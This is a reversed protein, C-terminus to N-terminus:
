RPQPEGESKSYRYPALMRRIMAPVSTRADRARAYLADYHRSPLKLNVSVSEDTPDVRPRGPPRKMM